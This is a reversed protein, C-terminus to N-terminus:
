RPYMRACTAAGYTGEAVCKDYSSITEAQHFAMAGLMFTGAALAVVFPIVIWVIGFLRVWWHILRLYENSQLTLTHIGDLNPNPWSTPAEILETTTM